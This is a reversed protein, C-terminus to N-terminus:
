HFNYAKEWIIGMVGRVNSYKKTSGLIGEKSAQPLLKPATIEVLAPVQNFIAEM